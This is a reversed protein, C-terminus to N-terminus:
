ILPRRGAAMAPRPRWEPSIGGPGLAPLAPQMELAPADGAHEQARLQVRIIHRTATVVGCLVFLHPYYAASLFAGSVAFAMMAASTAALMNRATAAQDPPLPGLKRLLRRNGVLNGFILTLLVAIGPLGLEGLVLFYISHATLWPGPRLRGYGLPFHGAGVGLLPNQAAMQMSLKWADIRGKASSEETDSITAMRDFFSDPAQSVAISVVLVFVAATKLKKPSKLWYYLGVAGLGVIGGRSQTAIVCFTLTLLGAAWFIAHVRKKSEAMLFLCLPICINVSLSFDNGDGLFSGSNIGVRTNTPSFVAPNLAAIIIHAATLTAFVGKLRPIDGVLRVISWYILMYSFVATTVDYAYTTVTAFFTSVALLGLLTVMLKTNWEAFFEANSVPTKMVLTGLICTLPVLANLHLADLGGIYAGPRVYELVFFGLLAYYIPRTV